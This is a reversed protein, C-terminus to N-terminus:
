GVATVHIGNGLQWFKREAGWFCGLAFYATEIGQPYPPVLPRSFLLARGGDSHAHRPRSAGDRALADPAEQPLPVHPCIGKMSHCTRPSFDVYDPTARCIRTRAESTVWPGGLEIVNERM